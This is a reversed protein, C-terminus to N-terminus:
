RNMNSFLKAPDTRSGSVLNQANGIATEYTDESIAKLTAQAVERPPIGRDRQQRADRAGKDLNTDVMPPIVEFVKVTTTRLQHRLSVSFSHVAAKTACYVPMIALPAFGLGSSVNVIASEDKKMLEPIFLATLYVLGKFNIDIEDQGDSDRFKVLDAPGKTFDVMHQIGANNILVSTDPHNQMVWDHLAEREVDKSLDCRRTVLGPLRKRADSLTSESRACAIVKNGRAIFEESMALGIGTSGGTILITQGNTKM